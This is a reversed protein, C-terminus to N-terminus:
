KGLGDGPVGLPRMTNSYCTFLATFLATEEAKRFLDFAKERDADAAPNGGTMVCLLSLIHDLRPEGGAVMRAMFDFISCGVHDELDQMGGITLRLTITDGGVKLSTEGHLRYAM